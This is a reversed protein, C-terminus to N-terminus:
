NKLVFTINSKVFSGMISQELAATILKTDESSYFSCLLSHWVKKSAGPLGDLTSEFAQCSTVKSNLQPSMSLSKNRFIAFFM